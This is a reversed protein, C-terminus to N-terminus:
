GRSSQMGTKPIFTSKSESIQKLVACFVCKLCLCTCSGGGGCFLKGNAAGGDEGIIGDLSEQGGIHIPAPGRRRPIGDGRGGDGRGGGGRGVGGGGGGGGTGIIAEAGEGDEGIVSADLFLGSNSNSGIIGGGEGGEGGGSSVVALSSSRANDAGLNDGDEDGDGSGGHPLRLQHHNPHSDVVNVKM